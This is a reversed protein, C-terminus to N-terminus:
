SIWLFHFSTHYSIKGNVGCPVRTQSQEDSRRILIPFKDANEQTVSVHDFAPLSPKTREREEEEVPEVQLHKEVCRGRVWWNRDVAHGCEEREQQAKRMLNKPNTEVTSLESELSEEEENGIVVDARSEGVPEIDDGIHVADRSLTTTPSM